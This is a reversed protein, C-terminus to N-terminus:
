GAFIWKRAPKDLLGLYTDKSKKLISKAIKVAAEAAGNSQSFKPSSTVHRFEYENAFKKFETSFQTECDSRVVEPIGFRAFLNKCHEIIEAETMSKTRM